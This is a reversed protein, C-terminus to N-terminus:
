ELASIFNEAAPLTASRALFDDGDPQRFLLQLNEKGLSFTNKDIVKQLHDRFRSGLDLLEGTLVLKDVQFNNLQEAIAEGLLEATERVIQTATANHASFDAALQSFSRGSKRALASTSVLAELCGRRGCACPTGGPIRVMHGFEGGHNSRSFIRRGNEVAILGLGSGAIIFLASGSTFEPNQRMLGQAIAVSHDCITLHDGWFRAFLPRLKLGNLAPFGAVNELTHDAGFYSGFVSVGAGALNKGAITTLKAAVAEIGALYSPRDPATAFVLHECHRPTGTLDTVVGSIRGIELAMGILAPGAPDICLQTRPRGHSTERKAGVGLIGRALLERVARSVTTNDCDLQQAIEIRSLGPSRRLLNLVARLNRLKVENLTIISRAM